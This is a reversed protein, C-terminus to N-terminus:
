FSRPLHSIPIGAALLLEYAKAKPTQVKQTQMCNTWGCMPRDTKALHEMSRGHDNWLGIKKEMAYRMAITMRSRLGSPLYHDELDVLGYGERIIWYNFDKTLIWAHLGGFEDTAFVQYEIKQGLPLLNKAHALAKKAMEARENIGVVHDARNESPINNAKSFLELGVLHLRKQKGDLEVIVTKEDLIDVLLASDAVLFSLAMLILVLGKM